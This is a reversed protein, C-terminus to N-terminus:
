PLTGAAPRSTGRGGSRPCTTRHPPFPLFFPNHLLPLAASSWSSPTVVQALHFELGLMGERPPSNGLGRGVFCACKCKVRLSKVTSLAPSVAARRKGKSGWPWCSPVYRPLSSPLAASAWPWSGGGSSSAAEVEQGAVESRTKNQCGFGGPRSVALHSVQATSLAPSASPNAGQAPMLGEPCRGPYPSPFCGRLRSPLLM